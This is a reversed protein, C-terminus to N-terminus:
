AAGAERATPRLLAALRDRQAESLPPAKDVIAKIHAARVETESRADDLSVPPAQAAPRRTIV